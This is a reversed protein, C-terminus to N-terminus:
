DKKPEASFLLVGDETGVLLHEDGAMTASNLNHKSSLRVKYVMELTNFNRVVMMKGCTILYKSDGTICMDSIHEGTYISRLLRGNITYLYIRLEKQSYAIWNGIHTDIAIMDATEVKQREGESSATAKEEDAKARAEEGEEGRTGEFGEEGAAGIALGADENENEVGSVHGPTVLHNLTPAFIIVHRVYDGRRLNHIIAMGFSASICLDQESSAAVCTIPNSHGYLVHTPHPEVHTPARASRLRRKEDLVITWILVSTDKSGTVLYKGDETITLCTVRDKHGLLSQQGSTSQVPTIKVSNDWHGASFLFRGDRSLTFLKPSIKAPLLLRAPSETTDRLFTVSQHNQHNRSVLRHNYFHRQSDIAIVKYTQDKENRSPIEAVSGMSGGVSLVQGPTEKDTAIGERVTLLSLIAGVGVGEIKHMGIPNTRLPSFLNQRNWDLIGYKGGANRPPHPKNTLLQCPTQGFNAITAETAARRTPDEIAEFDVSGEYTLHHFVNHAEVAHVGRQKYGFILDIWHHLNESVYESELALRNIRVFEDASGKAWPPLVVDGLAVGNQKIGFEFSNENRLFAPNCFFEPILEKVDAPASTCNRWSGLISHFLRDAHDFRGDQLEISLTTFPEMRILWYCVTHASSYHSGYHFAPLTDDMWSEYREIYMKLRKETLAGMPKKLDRFTKPDSLNLKDAEYEAIIWPFVPYQTLDNYTRGAITNLHILYDFNSIEGRQWAETLGSKRLTETPSSKDLYTITSGHYATIQKYFRNRDVREPFNFFYNTEDKIFIELASPCLLYRRLHIERITLIRWTKTKLPKKETSSKQHAALKKTAHLEQEPEEERVEVFYLHTTTLELTGPTSKTPTILVCGVKLLSQEGKNEKEKKEEGEKEELGEEDSVNGDDPVVGKGDEPVSPVMSEVDKEQNRTNIARLETLRKIVKHVEEEVEEDKNEDKHSAIGGGRSYMLADKHDNFQKNLKVKLRMRSRNEYPNLKYHFVPLKLNVSLGNDSDKADDLIGYGYILLHMRVVRRWGRAQRARLEKEYKNAIRREIGVIDPKSAASPTVPTSRFDYGSLQAEKKQTFDTIRADLSHYEKVAVSIARNWKQNIETAMNQESLIKSKLREKLLPMIIELMSQDCLVRFFEEAPKRMNTTDSFFKTVSMKEPHKLQGLSIPAYYALLERMFAVLSNSHYLESIRGQSDYWVGVRILHYMVYFCGERDLQQQPQSTSQLVSIGLIKNCRNVHQNVSNEDEPNMNYFWAACMRIYLGRLEPASLGSAGKLASAGAPHLLGCISIMEITASLINQHIQSTPFGPTTELGRPYFIVEEVTKFLHLLNSLLPSGKKKIDLLLFDSTTPQQTSRQLEPEVNPARSGTRGRERYPQGSFVPETRERVQDNTKPNGQVLYEAEMKLSMMINDLVMLLLLESPSNTSNETPNEAEEPSLLESPNSPNLARIYALTHNIQIHGQKAGQLCTFLFLSFILVVYNNCNDSITPDLSPSPLESSSPPSDRPSLNSNATLSVFGNLVVLWGQWGQCQDLITQQNERHSTLITYFDQLIHEKFGSSKSLRMIIPVIEPIKINFQNELKQAPIPIAPISASKMICHLTSYLLPTLKTKKLVSYLFMFNEFHEPISKITAGFFKFSSRSNLEYINTIGIYKLMVRLTSVYMGDSRSQALIKNYVDMGGETIAIEFFNWKSIKDHRLFDMTAAPDLKLMIAEAVAEGRQDETPWPTSHSEETSFFEEFLTFLEICPNPDTGVLCLIFDIMARFEARNPNTGLLIRILKFIERRIEEKPLLGESNKEVLKHIPATSAKSFRRSFTDWYYCRIIDLLGQVGILSNRIVKRFQCVITPLVVAFFHRQVEFDTYVWLEFDLLIYQLIQMTIGSPLDYNSLMLESISDLLPISLSEPSVHVLSYGLVSFGSNKLFDAQSVTSNVLLFKLIDFLVLALTSHSGGPIEEPPLNLHSFLPIIMSIGGICTIIDNIDNQVLKQIDKVRANLGNSGLSPSNDFCMNGEISQCVYYCIIHSSLTGDFIGPIGEETREIEVDRTTNSRFDSYYTPGLAFIESIETQQLEEDFFYITGMQGFFTFKESPDKTEMELTQGSRDMLSVRRSDVSNRRNEQKPSDAGHVTGIRTPFRQRTRTRPSSPKLPKDNELFFSGGGGCGVRVAFLNKFVQTQGRVSIKQVFNGNVFLKIESSKGWLRSSNTFTLAVHYWRAPSFQFSDFRHSQVEALDSNASASRIHYYLVGEVFFLEFGHNDLTLFSLLRPRFNRIASPSEFSEINIWTSFSWNGGTPPWVPLSGLIFQSTKGNFNFSWLPIGCSNKLVQSSLTKDGGRIDESKMGLFEGRTEAQFALIHHISRLVTWTTLMKSELFSDDDVHDDLNPGLLEQVSIHNGIFLSTKKPKVLNLLQKLERVTISYRALVQILHVVKDLLVRHENSPDKSTEEDYRPSSTDGAQEELSQRRSKRKEVDEKEGCIARTIGPISWTLESILGAECCTALNSPCPILVSTFTNYLEMQVSIPFLPALQFILPVLDKNQILFFSRPDFSGDVLMDFLVDLLDQSLNQDHVLYDGLTQVLLQKLQDYGITSLFDQKSEENGMMLYTLARLVTVSLEGLERRESESAPEGHLLSLLKMFCNTERFLNQRGLRKKGDKSVVEPIGVDLLYILLERKPKFDSDGKSKTSSTHLDVLFDLFTGYLALLPGKERVLSINKHGTDNNQRELDELKKPKIEVKMMKALHFLGFNRTDEHGLLSFFTDILPACSLARYFGESRAFGRRSEGYYSRPTKFYSQTFSFIWGRAETLIELHVLKHVSNDSATSSPNCLQSVISLLSALKEQVSVKDLAHTTKEAFDSIISFLVRSIHYVFYLSYFYQPTSFITTQSLYEASIQIKDLLKPLESFNTDARTFLNSLFNLTSEHLLETFKPGKSITYPNKTLTVVKRSFDSIPLSTFYDGLITDLVDMKLLSTSFHPDIDMLRTFYQLVFLQLEPFVDRVHLRVRKNNPTHRIDENFLDLLFPVITYLDLPAGRRSNSISTPEAESKKSWAQFESESIRYFIDFLQKLVSNFYDWSEPSKTKADLPSLLVQSPKLSPESEHGRSLVPTETDVRDIPEKEIEAFTSATWLVLDLMKEM